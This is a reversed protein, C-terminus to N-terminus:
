LESQVRPGPRQQFRTTCHSGHQQTRTYVGCAQSLLRGRWQEQLVKVELGGRGRAQPAKVELRGRGRAQQM